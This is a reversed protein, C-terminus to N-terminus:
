SEQELLQVQALFRADAVAVGASRALRAARGSVFNRDFGACQPV